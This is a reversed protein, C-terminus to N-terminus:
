LPFNDLVTQPTWGLSRASANSFTLSATIKRYRDTDIPFRGGAMDGVRAAVRAIWAPMDPVRKATTRSAILQSLEGFSPHEDDCLNYVGGKDAALPIFRAIDQALVMSKHARGGAINVYYGKRIGDIMNGLNGPPDIGAILAPRLVTLCVDNDACWGRLFEEAEIKSRAYPTAGNLPHSEPILEGSDAGYVAVSSVFVFNDPVGSRELAECLRRTGDVNTRRFLEAEDDNRPVRHAMGAAHIVMDYRRPLDPVNQSLDCRVANGEGRGLSTIDAYRERLVPLMNRGLFGTGGTLLISPSANM